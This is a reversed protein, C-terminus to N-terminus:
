SFCTKFRSVLDQAKGRIGKCEELAKHVMATDQQRCFIIVWFSTCTTLAALGHVIAAVDETSTAEDDNPHENLGYALSFIFARIDTLTYNNPEWTGATNSVDGLYLKATLKVEKKAAMYNYRVINGEDKNNKSEGRKFSKPWKFNKPLKDKSELIKWGLAIMKQMTHGVVSYAWNLRELRPWNEATTKRTKNFGKWLKICKGFLRPSTMGNINMAARGGDGLKDMLDEFTSCGCGYALFM